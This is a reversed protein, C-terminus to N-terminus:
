EVTIERVEEQMDEEVGDVNYELADDDLDSAKSLMVIIKESGKEEYMIEVEEGVTIENVSEMDELVSEENLVYVSVVEQDTEYNYESISIENATVKVISGYAYRLNEMDEQASAGPIYLVLMMLVLGILKRM